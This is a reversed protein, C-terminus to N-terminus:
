MGWYVVYLLPIQSNYIWMRYTSHRQEEFLSHIMVYCKIWVPKIWRSPIFGDFQQWYFYTSCNIKEGSDRKLTYLYSWIARTSKIFDYKFNQTSQFNCLHRKHSSFVLRSKKELERDIEIIVFIFIWISQGEKKFTLVQLMWGEMVVILRNQCFLRKSM